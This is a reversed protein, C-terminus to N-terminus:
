NVLPLRYRSLDLLDWAPYPADLFGEFSGHARHPIVDGNRRCTVSPVQDFRAASELAGIAELADEPEGVIMADVAPARRM